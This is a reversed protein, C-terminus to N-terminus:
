FLCRSERLTKVNTNTSKRWTKGKIKSKFKLYWVRTYSCELVRWTNVWVFEVFISYCYDEFTNIVRFELGAWCCDFIKHKKPVFLKIIRRNGNFLNWLINNRQKVIINVLYWNATSQKKEKTEKFFREKEIMQKTRKTQKNHKYLM